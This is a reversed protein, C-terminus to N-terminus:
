TMASSELKISDSRIASPVGMAAPYEYLPTLSYLTTQIDKDEVGLDKIAKIVANMKTNNQNVVDQSKLAQSSVGFNILAIDPKIYAKGEGSISIEHPMNKPLSSFRYMLEGVLFISAVVIVGIVVKYLKDSFDLTHTTELSHSTEISNKTRIEEEM